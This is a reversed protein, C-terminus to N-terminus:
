VGAASAPRPRPMERVRDPVHIKARTLLRRRALLREFDPASFVFNPPANQAADAVADFVEGESEAYEALLEAEELAKEMAERREAQLRRLEAMSKELHRTIRHEYLGLLDMNKGRALWARGQAFAENVAPIATHIDDPDSMVIAFIDAELAAARHLRWRDDAISQVISNELAGVPALSQRIGRCFDEYAVQEAATRILVQGTLGHRYANFARGDPVKETPM